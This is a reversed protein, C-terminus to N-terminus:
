ANKFRWCNLASMFLPWDKPDTCEHLRYGTGDLQLALRRRVRAEPFEAEYAKAYAALQPGVTRPMAGTKIDLVCTARRWTLIVDCTGAYLLTRHAMRVESAVVEAGTDALFQRWGALYPALAPDLAREDLVGRNWLDVAQHVHTGFQAAAALTEQDVHSWDQLLGLVQTVSPLPKGGLTYRHLQEDFQLQTV